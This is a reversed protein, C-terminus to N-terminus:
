YGAAEASHDRVGQSLTQWDPCVGETVSPLANVHAEQEFQSESVGDCDRSRTYIERTIVDGEHSWIVSEFHWGEDTRESVSHELSEGPELTLKTMQENIWANFRANRM